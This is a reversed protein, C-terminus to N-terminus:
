GLLRDMASEVSAANILADEESIDEIYVPKPCERSPSTQHYEAVYESSLNRIQELEWDTLSCREIVVPTYTRKHRKSQLPHEVMEVTVERHFHKAWSVIEHWTLPTIGGSTQQVTGVAFWMQVLSQEYESLSPLEM